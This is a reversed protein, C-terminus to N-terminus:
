NYRSVIDGFAVGARCSFRAREAHFDFLKSFSGSGPLYGPACPCYPVGLAPSHKWNLHPNLIRFRVRNGLVTAKEDREERQQAVSFEFGFEAPPKKIHHLGLGNQGHNQRLKGAFLWEV